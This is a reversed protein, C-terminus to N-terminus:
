YANMKICKTIFNIIPSNELARLPICSSLLAIIATEMVNATNTTIVHAIIIIM